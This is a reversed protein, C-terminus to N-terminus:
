LWIALGLYLGLESFQQVAGLCDGTYGQLKRMFIHRFVGAALVAVLLAMFTAGIGFWLMAALVPVATTLLAFRFGDRSVTPAVFKAGVDRAYDHTAIVSVAAMRSIMHMVLVAMAADAATFSALVAAKLALVLGLTVTGYTGIRSDRMIDLARERTLGGGLGDAADALGDEHFAGTAFVTAAISLLVAVPMTVAQSMLLLVLAGIAGVVGGVLPYYRTARILLDDSFPLDRPVPLRTLFQVALLFVQWESVGRESM